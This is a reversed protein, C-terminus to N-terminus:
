HHVMPLLDVWRHSHDKCTIAAKLSRHWREVLGNSAPHYASTRTKNAGLYKTLAQFVASEFQRGQDTTIIAPAGYRAVWTSHFAKAISDATIEKPIAEPWRSFRDIMTLCYKYGRVEPLPGIIDLHIQYFRQDPTPIKKPINRTHRHIKTRQCPLCPRTWHTVDKNIGPWVFKQRIQHSTSRASPHSM